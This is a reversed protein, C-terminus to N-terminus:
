PRKARIEQRAKINQDNELLDVIYSSISKNSDKAIRSLVDKLSAPIVLELRATEEKHKPMPGRSAPLNSVAGEILALEHAKDKNNPRQVRWAFKAHAAAKIERERMGFSRLSKLTSLWVSGVRQQEIQHSYYYLNAARYLLENCERNESKYIERFKRWENRLKSELGPYLEGEVEYDEVPQLGQELRPYQRYQAIIRAYEVIKNDKQASM